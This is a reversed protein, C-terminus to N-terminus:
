VVGKKFIFVCYPATELTQVVAYASKAREYMDFRPVVEFDTVHPNTVQAVALVEQQTANVISPDNDIEMRALPQPVFTDLPFVSLIATAARAVGSEGLWVVPNGGAHAPFNRDAVVLEDGHGMQDLIKLLDGNLLPDIGKLV